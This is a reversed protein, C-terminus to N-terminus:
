NMGGCARVNLIAPACSTRYIDEVELGLMYTGCVDEPLNPYVTKSDADYRLIDERQQVTLEEPAQILMWHWGVIDGNYGYSEEASLELSDFQGIILLDDYWPWQTKSWDPWHAVVTTMVPQPCRPELAVGHVKLEFENNWSEIDDDWYLFTSPWLRFHLLTDHVRTTGSGEDTDWGHKPTFTITVLTTQDVGITLGSDGSEIAFESDYYDTWMTGELEVGCHNELVVTQSSQGGDVVATGLDLETASLTLCEHLDVFTPLGRDHAAQNALDGTWDGGPECGSMLLIAVLLVGRNMM